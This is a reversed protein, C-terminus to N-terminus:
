TRILQTRFADHKRVLGHPLQLVRESAIIAFQLYPKQEQLRVTGQINERDRACKECREHYAINQPGGPGPEPRVRAPQDQVRHQHRIERESEKHCYSELRIAYEMCYSEVVCDTSHQLHTALKM